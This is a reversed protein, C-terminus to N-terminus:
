KDWNRGHLFSAWQGHLGGLDVGCTEAYDGTRILDLLKERGYDQLIFQIFWHAYAYGGHRSFYLPNRNLFIAKGPIAQRDLPSSSIDGNALYLALGESLWLRCHPNIRFVVTHVFEHQVAHLISARSHDRVRANPSVLLVDAGLNDGIYWGLKLLDALLGYKVRQFQRQDPYVFVRTRPIPVQFFEQTKLYEEELLGALEALTGAEEGLSYLVFHETELAEMGTAIPRSACSALALALALWALARVIGM